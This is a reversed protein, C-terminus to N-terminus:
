GTLGLFSPALLLLLKADMAVEAARKAAIFEVIEGRPVLHVAIDEEGAVGGGAGVRTLGHARVLTFTESSMGPSAFFDGLLEIREATFGTEEELERVATAEVSADSGHDGILGAPLELSLGGVAARQQEVLVYQGDHEALIVVARINKTRGAFEWRGRKMASVFRGEWM